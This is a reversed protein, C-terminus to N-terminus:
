FTLHMKLSVNRGIEDTYYRFRNMYNRYSKNLLNDVVLAFAITKEVIKKEINYDLNLLLYDSPPNTYDSNVEFRNQYFTYNANLAVHSKWKQPKSWEYNLGTNLQDSPIGVIFANESTNFARVLSYKTTFSLHNVLMVDWSLDLGSFRADVQSYDFKPFAGKVTLLVEQSPKLYIFGDFDHHYADLYLGMKKTKYQLGLQVSKSTEIGLNENGIEFAAAGHHLGNSYLESISPPRWAYGANIKFLWHHGFKRSAGLMGSGNGFNRNPSILSDGKFLFSEMFIRDYRLGVEAQWDKKTYTHSFYLGFNSKKFNPVLYRGFRLNEQYAGTIGMSSQHSPKWEKELRFETNHTILSLGFDPEGEKSSSFVSPVDFEKRDNFQRSYNWVFRGNKKLKRRIEAKFLEHAIRQKPADVSYTFPEIIQPEKSSFAINLDSLNGIHSGKFIGLETTFLSYVIEYEMNKRIYQVNWAINRESFGTNSLVYNPANQSGSKKFTGNARMSLGEIKKSNNELGVSVFGMKGNSSYGTFVDGFFGKASKWSPNSALLVGAIADPGYRVVNAGKVLTLESSIFPDIEPAHESGWQQGEQRVGNNMMVIRNSHMGHIVPKAINNGTSLTSVGPLRKFQEGLTKGADCLKELESLRITTLVNKDLVFFDANVEDMELFHFEIQLDLQISESLNVVKKLPECGIHHQCILLYEGPALSDIFYRGNTDSIAGKNLGKLYIKAFPVPTGDHEDLVFGSLQLNNAQSYAVLGTLLCFLSLVICKM